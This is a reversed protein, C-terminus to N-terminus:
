ECIRYLVQHPRSPQLANCGRGQSSMPVGCLSSESVRDVGHDRGPCTGVHHKLGAICSRSVLVDRWCSGGHSGIQSARWLALAVCKACTGVVDTTYLCPRLVM